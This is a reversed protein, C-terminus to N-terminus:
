RIVNMQGALQIFDAKVIRHQIESIWQLPSRYPYCNVSLGLYALQSLLKFNFITGYM